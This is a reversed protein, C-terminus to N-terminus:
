TNMWRKSFFLIKKYMTIIEWWNFDVKESISRRYEENQSNSEGYTTSRSDHREM